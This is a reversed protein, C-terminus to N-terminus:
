VKEAKEDKELRAITHRLWDELLTVLRGRDGEGLLNAITVEPAIQIAHCPVDQNRGKDPVFQYLKCERCAHRRLPDGFNICSFGTKFPSPLGEGSVKRDYGGQELFNLEYRLTELVEHDTAM